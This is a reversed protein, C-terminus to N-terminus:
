KPRRSKAGVGVALGLLSWIALSCAEPVAALTSTADLRVNDFDTQTGSGATAFQIRLAQGLNPDTASATYMVTATQLTGNPPIFSNQDFNLETTGAFLSVRYGASTTTAQTGVDINLTYKTNATLTATLTQFIAPGTLNIYAVQLGQTPTLQATTPNFVGEVSGTTWSDISGPGSNFGGDAQVPSEFSPNLVTVVAANAPRLSTASLSLLVLAAIPLNRTM